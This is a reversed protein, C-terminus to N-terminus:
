ARVKILCNHRLYAEIDDRARIAPDYLFTDDALLEQVEPLLRRAKKYRFSPNEIGFVAAYNTALSYAFSSRIDVCGQNFQLAWM